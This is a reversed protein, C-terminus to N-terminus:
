GFQEGRPSPRRDLWWQVILLNVVWSIWTSVGVAQQLAATDVEAGTFVEPVFVAFLVVLWLRNAVISFTLAFSRLMWRRHDLYRGQRVARFGALTTGFWLVALITNAVQANTGNVTMPALIMVALSAPLAAAVYIRGSTRHVRPHHQRLWPWVQLCAALLVVAGLFIHTVLLPYFAPVPPIPQLRAQGPDLTLYPPLAFTVFVVAVLALPVVWPRRVLPTRSRDRQETLHAAPPSLEDTSM